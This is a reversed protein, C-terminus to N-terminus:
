KVMMQMATEFHKPVTIGLDRVKALCQKGIRKRSADDKIRGFETLLFELALVVKASKKAHIAARFAQKIEKTFGLSTEAVQTQCQLQEQSVPVM